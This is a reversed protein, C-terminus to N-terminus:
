HLNEPPRLKQWSWKLGAVVLVGAAGFFTFESLRYLAPGTWGEFDVYRALVLFLVVSAVFAAIGGRVAVRSELMGGLGICGLLWLSAGGFFVTWFHQHFGASAYKGTFDRDLHFSWIFMGAMLLLGLGAFIYSLRIVAPKAGRMAGMLGHVVL